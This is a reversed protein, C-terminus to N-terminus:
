SLLTCHPGHKIGTPHSVSCVAKCPILAVPASHASNCGVQLQMECRSDVQVQVRGAAGRGGVVGEQVKVQGAPVLVLVEKGSSGGTGRELVLYQQFGPLTHLAQLQGGAQAFTLQQQPALRYGAFDLSLIQNGHSKFEMGYRPLEYLVDLQQQEQQQEGNSDAKPTSCYVHIFDKPEMKSLVTFLM